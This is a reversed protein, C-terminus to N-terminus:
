NTKKKKVELNSVFFGGHDDALGRLFGRTGNSRLDLLFEPHGSYIGVAHIAVHRRRNLRKIKYYMSEIQAKRGMTPMGDSIFYITDFNKIQFAKNFASLIDTPATGVKVKALLNCAKNVNFSNAEFLHQSGDTWLFHSSENFLRISFYTKSKTKKAPVLARLANQLETVAVKFKSQHSMSGSNDLLFLLARGRHPIGFCEGTYRAHLGAPRLQLIDAASALTDKNEAWWLVWEKHTRKDLGTLQFLSARIAGKVFGSKEQGLCQILLAISGPTSYKSVARAAISRVQQNGKSSLAQNLVKLAQQVDPHQLEGVAEVAALRLYTNRKKSLLQSLLTLDAATGIRGLAYTLQQNLLRVHTKKSNLRGKNNALANNFRQSAADNGRWSLAAIFSHPREDMSPDNAAKAALYQVAEDNRLRATARVVHTPSIKRKQGVFPVQWLIKAAPKTDLDGLAICANTYMASSQPYGDYQGTMVTGLFEYTNKHPYRGLSALKQNRDNVATGQDKIERLLRNLAAVDIGPQPIVKPEVTTKGTKKAKDDNTISQEPRPAATGQDIGKSKQEGNDPKNKLTKEAELTEAKKDDPKPKSPTTKPTNQKKLLERDIIQQSKKGNGALQRRSKKPANLQQNLFVLAGILLLVAAAVRMIPVTQTRLWHVRADWFRQQLIDRDIQACENLTDTLWAIFEEDPEILHTGQIKGHNDRLRSQYDLCASCDILHSTLREEESPRLARDLSGSILESYEECPPALSIQAEADLRSLRDELTTLFSPKAAVADDSIQSLPIYGSLERLLNVAGQLREQHDRCDACDKLHLTMTQSEDDALFVGDLAGSLIERIHGCNAAM